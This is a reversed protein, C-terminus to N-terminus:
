NRVAPTEVPLGIGRYAIYLELALFEDSMPKFPEARIDFMCGAFREHLPIMTQSALRYTPFGNTQGQSLYDSRLFQGYHKEHCSACSMDLQGNRQYYLQKGKEFWPTMPGDVKVSVAVDKSQTKIFTTMSTLAETKFEWPEAKMNDTRCINIQQELNVPKGKKENWKPYAAGASAMSKAADGHCSSCSKGAAGEVTAWLRSGREVWLMGPNQFEDKQVDQTEKSRFEFGSIIEPLPHGAPAKISKMDNACALGVQASSVGIAAIVLGFRKVRNFM